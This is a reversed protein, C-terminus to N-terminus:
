FLPTDKNDEGIIIVIKAIDEKNFVERKISLLRELKQLTYTQSGYYQIKSIPEVIFATKVSVVNGGLNSIVRELRSGLGSEGTANVIQVSVNEASIASDTLLFSADKNFDREDSSISAEEVIISSVPVKNTYLYLRLLDYFNIETSIDNPHLLFSQFISPITDKLSLSYATKIYGDPIVGFKRNFNSFSLNSSRPFILLSMSSTIPEFSVLGFVRNEKRGAHLDEGIVLTFRHQGDFKSQGILYFLRITFSFLILTFVFVGYVVLTKLSRSKKADKKERM